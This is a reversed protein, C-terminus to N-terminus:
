GKSRMLASRVPSAASMDDDRISTFQDVLWKGDTKVLRVAWRHFFARAGDTTKETVMLGTGEPHDKVPPVSLPAGETSVTSTPDPKDGSPDDFRKVCGEVGGDGQKNPTRLGCMTRVDNAIYAKTHRVAVDKMAAEDKARAQAEADARAREEKTVGPTDGTRGGKSDSSSSCGAVMLVSAAVAAVATVRKM